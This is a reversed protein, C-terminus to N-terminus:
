DNLALLFPAAHTTEEIPQFGLFVFEVHPHEERFIATVRDTGVAFTISQTLLRAIHLNTTARQGFNAGESDFISRHKEVTKFKRALLCRDGFPDQILDLASQM